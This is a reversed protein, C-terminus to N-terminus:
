IKGTLFEYCMRWDALRAKLPNSSFVAPKHGDFIHGVFALPYVMLPALLLWWWSCYLLILATYALMMCNGAVHFWRCTKTQHKSLYFQYYEETLMNNM